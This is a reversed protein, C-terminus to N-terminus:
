SYADAVDERERVIKRECQTHTFIHLYLLILNLAVDLHTIFKPAYYYVAIVFLSNCM